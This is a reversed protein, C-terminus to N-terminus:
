TPKFTGVIVLDTPVQVVSMNMLNGPFLVNRLAFYTVPGFSIGAMAGKFDNNLISQLTNNITGSAGGTVNISPPQPNIRISQSAGTGTLSVPNNASVTITNGVNGSPTISQYLHFGDTASGSYTGGLYLSYTVTTRNCCSGYSFSGSFHMPPAIYARYGEALSPSQPYVRFPKGAGNFGACLIDTFVIRSGIMLTCSYGSATPVPELVIPNGRAPTGNTTILIQVIINGSNTKLVNFKFQTPTLSPISAGGSFDLSAVQYKVGHTAFWSKIQDSLEQSSVGQLTVNRVTFAGNAFDLVVTHTTANILGTVSTLQVAASVAPHNGVNISQVPGWTVRSDNPTCGCSAPQFGAGVPMSGSRTSGSAIAQTVTVTNSGGSFVFSPAALTFSFQTVVCYDGHPSTLKPGCFVRSITMQQSGSTMSRFQSQFFANISSEVVNLVADWGNLVEKDQAMQGLLYSLTPSDAM